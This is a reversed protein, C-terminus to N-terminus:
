DLEPETEAAPDLDVGLEAAEQQDLDLLDTLGQEDGSEAETDHLAEVPDGHADESTRM